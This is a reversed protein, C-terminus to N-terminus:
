FVFIDFTDSSYMKEQLSGKDKRMKVDVAILYIGELKGLCCANFEAQVIM